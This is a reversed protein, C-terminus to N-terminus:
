KSRGLVDAVTEKVIQDLDDGIRTSELVRV